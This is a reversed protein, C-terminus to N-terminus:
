REVHAAACLARLPRQSTREISPNPAVRRLPQGEAVVNMAAATGALSGGFRKRGSFARLWHARDYARGFVDRTKGICSTAGSAVSASLLAAYSELALRLLKSSTRQALVAVRTCHPEFRCSAHDCARASSGGAPECSGAVRALQAVVAFPAGMVLSPM